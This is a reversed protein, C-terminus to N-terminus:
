TRSARYPLRHTGTSGRAMESSARGTPAGPGSPATRACRWPMSLARRSRWWTRSARCRRRPPSPPTTPPAGSSAMRNAGWAWVTGDQRLALTHYDVQPSPRSTRSARCRRRPPAPPHTPGPARAPWVGNSGWAWVTGDQRLALTHLTAALGVAVVGHPGAGAGPHANLHVIASRGLQGYINYGWAWVTGDQRLALSHVVGAALAIVSRSARCRCRSRRAPARHRGRAPWARQLGLGLRHRGEAAGRVHDAASALATRRRRSARCRCRRPASDTGTGLQGSQTTLGLGLRHRRQDAGATHSRLGRSPLSMAEAGGGAPPHPPHDDDRRRAPGACNAGWAWVTGDQRLALPPSGARRSARWTRQPGAVQVSSGSSPTATPCARAPRNCNHAGPGSPATRACHWPTTCRGASLAVVGSLGPVQMPIPTPDYSEPQGSSAMRTPAGPGSPATRACRWRTTVMPRSTWSARSARCRPTPPAPCRRGTESSARGTPAGPGSPAM